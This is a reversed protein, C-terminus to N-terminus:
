STIAIAVGADQTDVVTANSYLNTYDSALDTAGRWMYDSGTMYIDGNGTASLTMGVTLTTSSANDPNFFHCNEFSLFREYCNGTDAKVWTVTAGDAFMPFDCSIFKNRSCTGTLELNSNAAGGRTVTDIGITCNIFENEESGTLLLSRATADDGATANGIGQFHVNAFTNYDSTVEFLVNINNFQAFSLNSIIANNASLTFCSEAASSNFSIGNRNNIRRPAGNGLLHTRRKSWTIENESTRGTSSKGAVIVVDDRDATAASHAEDVTIFADARSTGGGSVSKNADVYWIRGVEPLGLASVINQPYWKLSGAGGGGKFGPYYRNADM